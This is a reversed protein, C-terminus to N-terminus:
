KKGSADPEVVFDIAAAAAPVDASTTYDPFLPRGDTLEGFPKGDCGSIRVVQPGKVAGMTPYTSYRGAVISGYGAPGSNGAASDPEFSIRGAPVPRGAFTVSGSVPFRAPGAPQRSCGIAALLCGALAAAQSRWV